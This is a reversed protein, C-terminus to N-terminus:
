VALTAPVSFPTVSGVAVKLVQKPAGKITIDGATKSPSNTSFSLRPTKAFWPVLGWQGVVLERQYEVSERAARIFAGPSRPYVGGGRWPSRGGVHWYREIDGAQPSVYRNCM